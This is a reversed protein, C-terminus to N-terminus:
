ADGESMADSKSAAKPEEKGKAEERKSRPLLQIRKRELAPVGGSGLDM